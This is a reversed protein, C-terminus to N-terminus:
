SLSTKKNLLYRQFSVNSLLLSDAQFNLASHFLNKNIATIITTSSYTNFIQIYSAPTKRTNKAKVTVSWFLCPSELPIHFTIELYCDLAACRKYIVFSQNIHYQIINNSM